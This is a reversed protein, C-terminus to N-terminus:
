FNNISPEQKQVKNINVVKSTTPNTNDIKAIVCWKGVEESTLPVEIRDGVDTKVLVKGDYKAFSDEPSLFGFFRFINTAILM